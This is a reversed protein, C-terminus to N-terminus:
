QTLCAASPLPRSFKAGRFIADSFNWSTDAWCLVTGEQPRRLMSLTHHGSGQAQGGRFDTEILRALGAMVWCVSSFVSYLCVSGRCMERRPSPGSQEWAKERERKLDVTATHLEGSPISSTNVKKKVWSLTQGPKKFNYFFHLFLFFHLKPNGFLKIDFIGNGPAFYSPTSGKTSQCHSKSTRCSYYLHECFDLRWWPEVILWM